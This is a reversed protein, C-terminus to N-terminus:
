RAYVVTFWLIGTVVCLVLAIYAILMDQPPPPPPLICALSPPQFGHDHAWKLSVPIRRFGIHEDWVSGRQRGWQATSFYGKKAAHTCYTPTQSDSIRGWQAITLRGARMADSCIYARTLVGAVQCAWQTLEFHGDWVACSAAYETDLTTRLMVWRLLTVNWKPNKSDFFNAFGDDDRRSWQLSSLHNQHAAEYSFTPYEVNSRQRVWQHLLLEGRAAERHLEMDDTIELFQVAPFNGALVSGVSSFEDCECGHSISWRLTTLDADRTTYVELGRCNAWQCTSLQGSRNSGIGIQAHVWQRVALDGDRSIRWINIHLGRNEFWEILFTSRLSVDYLVDIQPVCVGSFRRCTQSLLWTTPEDLRSGIEGLIDGPLHNM